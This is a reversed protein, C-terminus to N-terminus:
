VSGELESSPPLEYQKAKGILGFKVKIRELKRTWPEALVWLFLFTCVGQSLDFFFSSAYLAAIAQWTIPRLFGFLYYINMIWGFIFGSILGYLCLSMTAHGIIQRTYELLDGRSTGPPCVREWLKSKFYIKGTKKRFFGANHLLGALFGILGWCFMQWPAWPGQGFLFNSVFAALAGTMFGSEPGFAIAAIIVIASVPKFNPLPVFAFAARGAVGIAAMVAIPVLDRAQPKRKDYVLMFPIASALLFFLGLLVHANVLLYDQVTGNKLQMVPPRNAEFYGYSALLAPLIVCIVGLAVATRKSYFIRSLM